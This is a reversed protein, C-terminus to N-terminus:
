GEDYALDALLRSRGPIRGCSGARVECNFGFLGVCFYTLM